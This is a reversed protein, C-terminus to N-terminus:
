VLLTSAIGETDTESEFLTQTTQKIVETASQSKDSDFHSVIKRGTSKKYELADEVYREACALSKWGGHRKLEIESAGANALFTASTRRYSHVLFFECIVM